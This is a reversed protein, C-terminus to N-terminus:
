FGKRRRDEAVPPGIIELLNDRSIPLKFGIGEKLSFEFPLTTAPGMSAEPKRVDACFCSLRGDAGFYWRLSYPPNRGISHFTWLDKQGSPIHEVGEIRAVDAVTMSSVDFKT